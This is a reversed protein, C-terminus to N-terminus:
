GGKKVPVHVLLYQRPDKPYRPKPHELTHSTKASKRHKHKQLSKDKEEAYASMSMSLLAVIGIVHFVFLKM